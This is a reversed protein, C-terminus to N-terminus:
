APPHDDFHARLAKKDFKGTGTRPIEDLIAVHDPLRWGPYSDARRARLAGLDADGPRNM